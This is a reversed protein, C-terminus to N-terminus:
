KKNEPPVQSAKIISKVDAEISRTIDTLGNLLSKLVAVETTLSAIERRDEQADKQLETLLTGQQDVDKQLSGLWIGGYLCASIFAGGMMALPIYEMWVRRHSVDAHPNM